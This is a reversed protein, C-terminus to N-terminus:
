SAKKVNRQFGNVLWENIDNPLLPKSFFYGQIYECEYELLKALEGEEEVGEAVVDFGLKQSLAIIASVLTEDKSGQLINSVFCRDIKITSVPLSLLYSLSSYGTGFDDISFRVGEKRLELMWSKIADVDDVFMSETMELTLKDAPVQYNALISIIDRPKLGLQIQRVSLNISVKMWDHGASHWESLQKIAGDLVWLGIDGIYGADEAIPIFLDPPIMGKEPHKWRLLAESSVIQGSASDVIPQYVLFFEENALAVSLDSRLTMRTQVVEDMEATFLTVSGRGNSKSAHLATDAKQLLCAATDSDQPYLSIGISAGLLIDCGNASFPEKLCDLIKQTVAPVNEYSELREIVVAFEDGGLRALTDSERLLGQLRESTQRLVEDGVAHGMTENVENFHDLGIILVPVQENFRRAKSIAQSLRDVCLNRNPLGTLSDFHALKALMQEHAKRESIDQLTGAIIKDAASSTSKGVIDQQLYIPAEGEREFYHEMSFSVEGGDAKALKDTLLIRDDNSFSNLFASLLKENDDTDGGDAASVLSTDINLLSYLEDSCWMRGTSKDYEWNGLKALKQAERLRGSTEELDSTKAILSDVMNEFSTLLKRLETPIFTRRAAKYKSLSGSSVTETYQVIDALPRTIFRAVWWSVIAALIIGGAAISLAILKIAAANEDLESVPQPIMVGWATEQVVTHGAIMDADMAPTYFQTVGTEGAMMKKVPPVFSVDKMAAVWKPLPHALVRGHQDVIAAHGLKGFSIAKQVKKMYDTRIVGILFVDTDIETVAIIVPSNNHDPMVGSIYVGSADARVADINTLLYEDISKPYVVEEGTGGFSMYLEPAATKSVIWAHNFHFESLLEHVEPSTEGESANVGAIKFGSKLDTIYRTLAGTLNKAILLHKEHVADYENQIATQHVWTSLFFVPIASILTFCLFLVTRLSKAKVLKGM